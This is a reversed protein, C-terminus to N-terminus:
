LFNVKNGLCSEHDQSVFFKVNNKLCSEHDRSVFDLKIKCVVNM